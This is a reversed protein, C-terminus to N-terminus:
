KRSLRLSKQEERMLLVALLLIMAASGVGVGLAAWQWSTSSTEEDLTVCAAADKRYENINPDWLGGVQTCTIGMCEYHRELAQKIAVYDRQDSTYALQEQVMAADSESCNHLIPVVSAAFAAAEGKAMDRSEEDEAYMSQYTARLLGQVLPVTILGVIEQVYFRTEACKEAMLLEVASDSLSFVEQNVYSLGTTVDGSAGCTKFDKCLDDALAYALVGDGLGDDGELSGTYFAIGEDWANVKDANCQDSACGKNCDDLADEFERIVYMWVNMNLTAVQIAKHLAPQSYPRFDVNGMSFKTERKEFAAMIWQNGYDFEGFYNLYKAYDVYPCQPGCKGMKKEAGTSFGALTRGNKNDTEPNYTYPLAASQIGELSVTGLATLCGHLVPEPNKGVQCFSYESQIDSTAYRLKLETAGAEFDSYAYLTVPEGGISTGVFATNKNIKGTTQQLTIAAYSKSHAGKQYVLSAQTLNQAELLWTMLQQDLDLAAHDTVQYAPKYGAIVEGNIVIDHHDVLLLLSLSFSLLNLSIQLVGM